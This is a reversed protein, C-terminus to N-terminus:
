ISISEGDIPEELIRKWRAPLAQLLSHYELWSICRTYKDIFAEYTIFGNGDLLDEIFKVNQRYAQAYFVVKEGVKIYENFWVFQKRVEAQDHPPGSSYKCRAVLLGRWLSEPFTALITKTKLNVLWIDKCILPNLANWACSLLFPDEQIDFIWKCLLAIHKADFDVLRLGGQEKTACLIKTSIKARKGKWIFLKVMERLEQLIKEDVEAVVSLRYVFLSEVLTNVVLIRGMLTLPKHRWCDLVHQAKSVLPVINIRSMNRLNNDVYIGLVYIPPDDWAFNKQTYYRANTHCLSGIRYITTKEYNVKLGLNTEAQELTLSAQKVNHESGHLFLNTDDAFQTLLNIINNIVIGRVEPNTTLMDSFLQGTLNFLHPSICCGQHCGHTARWWSSINGNNQSCLEFNSFLLMVWRTFIPGFNFYKMAEELAHHEIMDFCKEFDINMVLGLIKQQNSQDMIQLIKLINTLINRGEMFGTQHSEILDPLVMKLRNDLAKSLIKYDLTLMTLPRWNKIELTNRDKKPILSLVGRRGSIHLQGEQFAYKYSDHLPAAIHEWHKKYFAAVIGDVGPTKDDKFHNVAKRLEDVTLSSDLEIRQSESLCRNTHNTLDFLTRTNTTYLKSYYRHHVNLIEGPDTIKSGKDNLIELMVRNSYRTKALNFFYKTNREGEMRYKARSHFIAKEAQAQNFTEYKQKMYILEQEYIPDLTKDYQTQLYHVTKQLRLREENNQISLNRSYMHSFSIIETKIMEWRIAANNNVYKELAKSIVIKIGEKYAKHGLHQANMKWLGKGQLPLDTQIEMYIQSHDSALGPRYDVLSTRTRLEDNILWFDLRAASRTAGRGRHWSYIKEQPNTERWIDCFGQAIFDSVVDVAKTNNYTSLLCDKNVDLVLNFDGGLITDTSDGEMVCQFLNTFFLLDDSNPAYLNILMINM